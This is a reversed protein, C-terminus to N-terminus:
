TESCPVTIKVTPLAAGTDNEWRLPYVVIRYDGLNDIRIWKGKLAKLHRYMQREELGRVGALEKVTAPPTKEGKTKWALGHL